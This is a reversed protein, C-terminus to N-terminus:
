ARLGPSTPMGVSSSSSGVSPIVKPAMWHGVGSLKSNAPCVLKPYEPSTKSMSSAVGSRARSSPSRIEICPNAPHSAQLSSHMGESVRTLRSSGTLFPGGTNLGTETLVNFSDDGDLTIGGIGTGFANADYTAQRSATTQSADNNGGFKDEWASIASGDAPQDAFDGDGDIDQADLNLVGNPIANVAAELVAADLLLRKELPQMLTRITTKKDKKETM